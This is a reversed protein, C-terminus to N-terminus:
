GALAFSSQEKQDSVFAMRVLMLIFDRTESFSIVVEEKLSLDLRRVSHNVALEQRLWDQFLEAYVVTTDVFIHRM